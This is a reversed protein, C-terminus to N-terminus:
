RNSKSFISKLLAVLLFLALVALTILLFVPNILFTDSARDAEKSSTNMAKDASLSQQNDLGAVGDILQMYHEKYVPLMAIESKDNNLDDYLSAIESKSPAYVEIDIVENQILKEEYYLSVDLTYAGQNLDQKTPITILQASLTNQTGKVTILENFPEKLLESQAVVKFNADESSLNNIKLFIKNEKSNALLKYGDYYFTGVGKPLLSYMEEVPMEEVVNHYTGLSLQDAASQGIGNFKVVLNSWDDFGYLKKKLKMRELNTDYDGDKNINLSIPAEEIRGNGNYDIPENAIDDITVAKFNPKYYITGIKQDITLGNPDVGDKEILNTEDLTPLAVHSFDLKYGDKILGDIQFAYNMVSIYNPKYIDADCGGHGLGLTHGLEHMFTSPAASFNTWGASRLYGEAVIFYQGGKSFLPTQKNQADEVINQMDPFSYGSSGMEMHEGAMYSYKDVVLCYRFISRREADFNKDIIDGFKANHLDRSDVVTNHINPVFNGRSLEGWKVRQGNVYNYSEPGSDIHLNYGSNKFASYVAEFQAPSIAFDREVKYWLKHAGMTSDVEVFIDKVNPDAGMKPLDVDIIGDGDVDVGNIEWDDPLGDGDTDLEHFIYNNKTEMENCYRESFTGRKGYVKFTRPNDYEYHVLDTFAGERHVFVERVEQLSDPLYLHKVDKIILSGLYKVTNPIHLSNVSADKFARSEIDELGDPLAISKFNGGSFAAEGIKKVQLGDILQPVELAIDFLGYYDTIEGSVKDFAFNIKKGKSYANTKFASDQFYRGCNFANDEIRSVSDPIHIDGKIEPIAYSKITKVLIKDVQNPITVDDNIDYGFYGILAGQADVIFQRQIGDTYINVENNKFGFLPAYCDHTNITTDVITIGRPVEVRKFHRVVRVDVRNIKVGDISSPVISEEEDGFYNTILDGSRTYTVREGNRFLKIVRKNEIHGNSSTFNTMNMVPLETVGSPLHIEKLNPFSDIFKFSDSYVSKVEIGKVADPIILISGDEDLEHNKVGIISLVGEDNVDFDVNNHNISGDAYTVLLSLAVSLLLCLLSYVNDKMPMRRRSM